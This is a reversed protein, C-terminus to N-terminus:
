TAGTSLTTRFRTHLPLCVNFWCTQAHSVSSFIVFIRSEKKKRSQILFKSKSSRFVSLTYDCIRDDGNSQISLQFYGADSIMCSRKVKCPHKSSIYKWHRDPIERFTGPRLGVGKGRLYWCHVRVSCQALHFDTQFRRFVVSDPWKM